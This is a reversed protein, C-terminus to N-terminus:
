IWVTQYESQIGSITKKFINKLDKLSKITQQGDFECLSTLAGVHALNIALTHM